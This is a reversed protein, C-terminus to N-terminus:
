LIVMSARPFAFKRGITDIVNLQCEYRGPAVNKLPVQIRVPVADPRASTLQTATVPGVEFTKDGKQNFLSMEVKVDRANADKPNPAADYVDFDIYMNQGRRFVKYDGVNPVVKEDGTILPNAAANKKTVQEAQGVAAKLSERQSSWVVSSTKLTMSDAALDPIVFKTDFTGMKGSQGERVLFRMRYRGPSLTFGADYHFNRSAVKEAETTPLKIHIYDRVMGMVQKREDM